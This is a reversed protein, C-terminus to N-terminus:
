RAPVTAPPNLMALQSGQPFRGSLAGPRVQPAQVIILDPLTKAVPGGPASPHIMVARNQVAVGRGSPSKTTQAGVVGAHLTLSVGLVLIFVTRWARISHTM